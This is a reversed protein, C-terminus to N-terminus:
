RRRYISCFSTGAVETLFGSADLLHKLVPNYYVVYLTAAREEFAARLNDLVTRMVSEQFPNFLYVVCNGEPFCYERADGLILEVPAETKGRRRANEKAIEHLDPSFEVGTVKAFPFGAAILVARGMGSGLDIFTYEGYAIGLKGIIKELAGAPTPMYANGRANVAVGSLKGAEIGLDVAAVPASTQLGTRRDFAAERMLAAFREPLRIAHRLCHRVLGAAGRTQAVDILRRRFINLVGAADRVFASPEGRRADVANM